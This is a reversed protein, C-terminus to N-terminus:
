GGWGPLWGAAPMGQAGLPGGGGADRLSRSPPVSSRFSNIYNAKNEHSLMPSLLFPLLLGYIGTKPYTYCLCFPTSGKSLSQRLFSASILWRPHTERPAATSNPPQSPFWQVARPFDPRTSLGATLRQLPFPIQKVPSPHLSTRGPVNVGTPKREKKRKRTFRGAPNLHASRGEREWLLPDPQSFGVHKLGHGLKALHQEHAKHLSTGRTARAGAGSRRKHCGWGVFLTHTPKHRRKGSTSRDASTLPSGPPSRRSQTFALSWHRLSCLQLVLYLVSLCHTAPLSLLKLRAVPRSAFSSHLLAMSARLCFDRYLQRQLLPM